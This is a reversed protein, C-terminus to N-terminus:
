PLISDAANAWEPISDPIQAADSVCHKVASLGTERFVVTVSSFSYDVLTKKYVTSVGESM